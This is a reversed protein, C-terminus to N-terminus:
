IQKRPQSFGDYRGLAANCIFILVVTLLSKSQKVLYISKTTRTRTSKFFHRTPFASKKALFAVAEIDCLLLPGVQKQVKRRLRVRGATVNVLIITIRPCDHAQAPSAPLCVADSCYIHQWTHVGLACHSGLTLTDNHPLKAQNLKSKPEITFDTYRISQIKHHSEGSHSVGM